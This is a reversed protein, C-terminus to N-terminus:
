IWFSTSLQSTVRIGAVESIMDTALRIAKGADDAEITTLGHAFENRKKRAKDVRDLTEDNIVDCISLIQSVISATYDRGGLLNRRKKSILTHGGHKIDIKKQLNLWNVNIMSEVAAWANLHASSFQHKRYQYCATYILALIILSQDGIEYDFKELLELTHDLTGAEVNDSRKPPYNIERGRDFFVSWAGDTKDATFYNTPDVPEQVFTGRKQITSLGSNFAQLFANMYVFRKYALNVRDRNANTVEKPVKRNRPLTYAPIEGGKYAEAKTFEFIISGDRLAVIPVDYIGEGQWAIKTLDAPEPKGGIWTPRQILLAFANLTPKGSERV